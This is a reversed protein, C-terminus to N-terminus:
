RQYGKPEWWAIYLTGDKLLRKPDPLGSAGLTGDPQLYRHATAIEDGNSDVYAIIQSRTCFPVAAKPSSPHHERAVRVTLEGAKAREDYKGDNFM